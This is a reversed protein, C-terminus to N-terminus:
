EITMADDGAFLRAAAEVVEKPLMRLNDRDFTLHPLHTTILKAVVGAQIGDRRQKVADRDERSSMWFKHAVFIRPDSTVIRLPAGKEDIATAEFPPASEHWALGHIEVASLDDPDAGIRQHDDNWPPDRMPRILDVLYGEDNMARFEQESRGFSKDIRRLIALLSAQDLDTTAVFSLRRRSDLLLDIDETTTVGPDIQVGAAAEYAYIANTGLVRVGNGLLGHQDLARIIKAGLLPVRGLELVRNVASQRALTETLMGLRKAADARNAEWEAKIRETETSKPGLSSQRRRGQRDYSVRTLYTHGKTTSWVMSGRMERERVSAERWAQYRQRTNVLERRQDSNLELFDPM